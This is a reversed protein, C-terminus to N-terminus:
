LLFVNGLKVRKSNASPMLFLVYLFLNPTFYILLLFFIVFFYVYQVSGLFVCVTM